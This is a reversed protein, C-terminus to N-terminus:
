LHVVRLFVICLPFNGEDALEGIAHAVHAAVETPHKM